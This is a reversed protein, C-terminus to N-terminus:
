KGARNAAQTRGRRVAAGGMALGGLALFAMTVPEPVATIQLGSLVGSGGAVVLDM